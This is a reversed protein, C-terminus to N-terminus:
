AGEQLERSRKVAAAFGSRVSEPLGSEKFAKLAAETTGGPSTVMERLRAPSYGSGALMKSAGEMTKFLLREAREASLGSSVAEQLLLEAMYFFYAPGSGSLATVANMDKEEVEVVISGTEFIERAEALDRDGAHTGAAVATAGCGLLFPTNPMVRIVSASGSYVEIASLSIGAAISILSKSGSLDDSIGSLVDNMNQPKVALIIIDANRVCENNSDTSVAGFGSFIDRREQSIDSATIREASYLGKDLVGRCLAEAMNGSGIFGLKREHTM